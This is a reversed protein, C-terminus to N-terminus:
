SDKNSCSYSSLIIGAILGLSSGIIPGYVVGTKVDGSVSGVVAGLTVGVGTGLALGLGIYSVPKRDKNDSMSNEMHQMVNRTLRLSAIPDLRQNPTIVGHKENSGPVRGM